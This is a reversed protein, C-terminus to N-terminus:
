AVWFLELTADITEIRSGKDGAIIRYTFEDQADLEVRISYLPFEGYPDTPKVGFRPTESLLSLRADGSM